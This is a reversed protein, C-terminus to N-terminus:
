LVGKTSPIASRRPDAAVAQGLARGLGKFIAEIIHHTNRGHILKVHLTLGAHVALAQLFEPVLETDWNGVKSANLAVDYVLYPRGSCDLAVLVLAEDMPMIQSGYRQIGAKDGLAQRLAQGLAIGVDEVSHHDDIEIDGRCTVQLDVLGHVAVHSLMHDFFPVGTDLEWNGSGDLNVRVRIDTERTQRAVEGVRETDM